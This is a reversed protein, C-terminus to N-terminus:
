SIAGAGDHRPPKSFQSRFDPMSVSTAPFAAHRSTRKQPMLLPQRPARTSFATQPFQFQSFGINFAYTLSQLFGTSNGQNATRRDRAAASQDAQENRIDFLQIGADDLSRSFDLFTSSCATAWWCYVASKDRPSDPSEPDVAIAKLHLGHLPMSTLASSM